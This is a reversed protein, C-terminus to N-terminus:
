RGNPVPAPSQVPAVPAAASAAAIKKRNEDITKRIESAFHYVVKIRDEASLEEGLVALSLQTVQLQATSEPLAILLKAYTSDLEALKTRLAQEDKSRTDALERLAEYLSLAENKGALRLVRVDFAAEADFTALAVEQRRISDLRARAVDVQVARYRHIETQLSMALAAGANAQDLAPQPTSCGAVWLALVSFGISIGTRM